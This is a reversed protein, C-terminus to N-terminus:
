IGYFASAGFPLRFKISGNSIISKVTNVDLQKILTNMIKLYKSWGTTSTDNSIREWFENKEITNDDGFAM